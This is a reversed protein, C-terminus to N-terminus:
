LKKLKDLEEFEAKKLNLLTDSLKEILRALDKSKNMQKMLLSLIVITEVLLIFIILALAFIIEILPVDVGFALM